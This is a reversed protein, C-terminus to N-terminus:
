VHLSITELYRIEVGAKKVGYEIMEDWSRDRKQSIEFWKGWLVVFLKKDDFAHIYWTKKISDKLADLIDELTERPVCYENTHWIPCEDEPVNEIRQSVFYKGLVELVGKNELSEEIIGLRYM